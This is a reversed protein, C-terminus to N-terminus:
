SVQKIYFLNRGVRRLLILSPTYILLVQGFISIMGGKAFFAALYSVFLLPGLTHDKDDRMLKLFLSASSLVILLLTWVTITGEQVRYLYIIGASIGAMVVSFLAYGGNLVRFLRSWFDSNARDLISDIMLASTLLSFLGLAGFVENKFIPDNGSNDLMITLCAASVAVLFGSLTTGISKELGDDVQNKKSKKIKATLWRSFLGPKELSRYVLSKRIYGLSKRIYRSFKRPPKLFM